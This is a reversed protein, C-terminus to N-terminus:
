EKIIDNEVQPVGESTKLKLIDNLKVDVKNVGKDAIKQIMFALVFLLPISLLTLNFSSKLYMNIHFIESMIENFTEFFPRHFLYVSFTSYAVISVINFLKNQSCVLSLARFILYSLSLVFIIFFLIIMNVLVITDFFESISINGSLISSLYITGYTSIFTSFYYETIYPYIIWCIIMCCSVIIPIGLPHQKNLVERIEKIHPSTYINAAIIGGIFPLYYIFFRNEVLGFNNHLIFFIFLIILSAPIIKKLSGLYSLIIFILYYIIILGIFWMTWIPPSYMPALIIQLGVFHSLLYFFNLASYYEYIILFIILAVWYLPFIRFFRKKLFTILKEGSNINRNKSHLFLGFGSIFTFSGMAVYIGLTHVLLGTHGSLEVYFNYAYNNPIHIMLVVIMISIIRLIDIEPLKEQFSNM